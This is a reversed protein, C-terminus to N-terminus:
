RLRLATALRGLGAALTRLAMHAVRQIASLEASTLQAQLTQSTEYSFNSTRMM